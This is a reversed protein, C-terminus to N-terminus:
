LLRIVTSRAWVQRIILCTQIDIKKANLDFAYVFCLQLEAKQWLVAGASMVAASCVCWLTRVLLIQNQTSCSVPSVKGHYQLLYDCLLLVISCREPLIFTVVSSLYNRHQGMPMSVARKFPSCVEKMWESMWETVDTKLTCTCKCSALGTYVCVHIDTRTCMCTWTDTHVPMSIHAHIQANACICMQTDMHKHRSKRHAQM